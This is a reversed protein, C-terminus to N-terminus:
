SQARELEKRISFGGLLFHLAGWLGLTLKIYILAYTLSYKEQYIPLLLDSLVGALWVGMGLGIINIVFLLVSSAFARTQPTAITQTIAFTPGLWLGSFIYSPILLLVMMTLDPALLAAVLFPVSLLQGIAPVWAYWAQTKTRAKLKDAFYGGAFTGIVGILGALFAMIYGRDALSVEHVRSLVSPLWSASGYGIFAALGGAFSIHLFSRYRMLDKFAQAMPIAPTSATVGVRPPEKVTLKFVIGLLIGPAGMIIFAWRWGFEEALVGGLAFGILTGIPIGLAYISLATGRQSLPFIDALISHSIPSAGAEGVGVGIRALLLDTFNRAMGSVATMLSWLALCIALLSTRSMRDALRALPIGFTAYFIGFAVGGLLGLQSDTLGMDQKIPELLISLVQRDLFNVIYIVLLFSLVYYKYQTSVQPEA